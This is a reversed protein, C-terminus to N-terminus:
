TKLFYRDAQTNLFYHLINIVIIAPAIVGIINPFYQFIIIALIISTIGNQQGLALYVKDQFSFNRALLFSCIVQSIICFLALFLGTAISIGNILLIGLLISASYFSFSIANNLVSEINPRLFLAIIAIALMYGFYISVAFSLVLLVLDFVKHIKLNKVLSYVGYVVGALCINLLIQFLYETFNFTIASNITYGLLIPLVFYLAILVTMPDDFSSWARLVTEGKTSLRKSKGGKLLHSVSVPDIQAVVVGFIFSLYNGTVLFLLGGIIISKLLVGLTVASLVIKKNKKFEEISIGYVGGYLGIALITYSFYSYNLQTIDANLIRQSLYSLLFGLLVFLCFM